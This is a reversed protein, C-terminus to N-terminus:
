RGKALPGGIHTIRQRLTKRVAAYDDEGYDGHKPLAIALDRELWLVIPRNTLEM